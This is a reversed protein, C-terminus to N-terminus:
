SILLLCNLITSVATGFYILAAAVVLFHKKNSPSQTELTAIVAQLFYPQSFLCVSFFLRPVIISLIPLSLIRLCTLALHHKTKKNGLLFNATNDSTKLHHSPLKSKSWKDNFKEALLESLFEPGLEDLDEPQLLARFGTYFTKNLWVYLTRNWFGSVAEKGVPRATKPDRIINKKPMEQLVMMVLKLAAASVTVAGLAHYESRM